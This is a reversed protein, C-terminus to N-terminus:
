LVGLVLLGLIALAVLAFMKFGTMGFKLLIVGAFIMAGFIVYQIVRAFWYDGGVSDLITKFVIDEGLPFFYLGIVILGGAIVPLTFRTM